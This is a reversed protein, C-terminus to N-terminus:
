LVTLIAVRKIGALDPVQAVKGGPCHSHFIATIETEQGLGHELLLKGHPVLHISALAIIDRIFDLGDPGGDLASRPEYGATNVAPLDAQPVYPLNALIVDVPGPLPELLNGRLLTVRSEVGHRRCNIAAVELASGSIDVAFIRALSATVAISVAVAGSGTGIDAFIRSGSAALKLAEDVLTETEPRPILVRRDVFFDLGYFERHGTIYAMPEGTLRRDIFGRFRAEEAPSLNRDFDRYLDARSIGLTHRLLVESEIPAEEINQKLLAKRALRLALQITV